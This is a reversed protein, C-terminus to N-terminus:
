ELIVSFLGVSCFGLPYVKVHKTQQGKFDLIQVWHKLGFTNATMRNCWVNNLGDWNQLLDRNAQKAWKALSYCSSTLEVARAQSQDFCWKCTRKRCGDDKLGRANTTSWHFYMCESHSSLKLWHCWCVATTWVWAVFALHEWATM